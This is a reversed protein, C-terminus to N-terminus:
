LDVAISPEYIRAAFYGAFVQPSGAIELDRGIRRRECGRIEDNDRHRSRHVRRVLGVQPREDARALESPPVHLAAGDHYVFRRYVGPAVSSIHTGTRSFNEPM